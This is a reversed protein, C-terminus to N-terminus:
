FFRHCLIKPPVQQSTSSMGLECKGIIEEIELITKSKAQTPNQEMYIKHAEKLNVRADRFNKIKFYMKGLAHCCYAINHPERLGEYCRKARETFEIAKTVDDTNKDRAFFALGNHLLPWGIDIHHYKESLAIAISFRQIAEDYREMNRYVSGLHTNNWHISYHYKNEDNARDLETLLAKFQEEAEVNRGLERYAAILFGAVRIINDFDNAKKYIMLSPNYCDIADQKRGGDRLAEGKCAFLDAISKNDVEKRLILAKRRLELARDYIAVAAIKDDLKYHFRGALNHLTSSLNFLEDANQEYQKALFEFIKFIYTYLEQKIQWSEKAYSLSTNKFRFPYVPDKDDGLIELRDFQGYELFLLDLRKNTTKPKYEAYQVERYKILKDKDGLEWIHLEINNIQALAQLVAPHVMISKNKIYEIYAKIVLNNSTLKQVESSPTFFTLNASLLNKQQVYTFFENTLLADSTAQKLLTQVTESHEKETNVVYDELSQFAKERTGEFLAYGGELVKHRNYGKPDILRICVSLAYKLLNEHIHNPHQEHYEMILGIMFMFVMMLNPDSYKEEMLASMEHENALLRQVAEYAAMFEQISLHLFYYNQDYVSHAQLGIQKLLQLKSFIAQIQTVQLPLERSCRVVSDHPIIPGPKDIVGRWALRALYEILPKCDQHNLIEEIRLNEITQDVTNQTGLYRKFIYELMKQYLKTLTLNEHGRLDAANINQLWISCILELHIPVHAMNYISANVSLMNLLAGKRSDVEEPKDRPLIETFLAAVYESIDKDTFGVLELHQMVNNFKSIEIHSDRSTLLMNESELLTQLLEHHRGSARTLMLAEEYGDLLYLIKIAKNELLKFKIFNPTFKQQDETKFCTEYIFQELPIKDIFRSLERLPLWLIVDFKKLWAVDNQQDNAWSYAIKRCLTTKGVGPQGEIIIRHKTQNENDANFLTSLSLANQYSYSRKELQQDRSDSVSTTSLQLETKKYAEKNMLALRIFLKEIPISEKYFLLPIKAIEPSLYKAKLGDMIYIDTGIHQKKVQTEWYTLADNGFVYAAKLIEKFSDIYGQKCFSVNVIKLFEPDGHYENNLLIPFIFRKLQGKADRYRKEIQYRDKIRENEASSGSNPNQLKEKYTRSSIIMVHDVATSLATEKYILDMFDNFTNGLGSHIRDLFVQMGACILHDAMNKIFRLTEAEDNPDNYPKAWGYSVFIKKSRLNNKITNIWINFLFEEFAAHKIYYEQERWLRKEDAINDKDQLVRTEPAGILSAVSNDQSSPTSSNGYNKICDTFADIIIKAASGYKFGLYHRVAHLHSVFAENAPENTKKILEQLVLCLYKNEPHQSKSFGIASNLTNEIQLNNNLM